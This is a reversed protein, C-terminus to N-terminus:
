LMIQFDTYIKNEYIDNAGKECPLTQVDFFHPASRFNQVGLLVRDTVSACNIWDKNKCIIRDAPISQSNKGPYKKM